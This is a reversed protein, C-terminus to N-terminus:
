EGALFWVDEPAIGKLCLRKHCSSHGSVLLIQSKAVKLERSLFAILAANAEGKEPIAALRIKLEGGQWGVIAHQSAKPIVKVPLIIGEASRTWM